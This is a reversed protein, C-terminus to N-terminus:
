FTSILIIMWSLACVYAILIGFSVKSYTDQTKIDELLDVLAPVVLPALIILLVVCIYYVFDIFIDM